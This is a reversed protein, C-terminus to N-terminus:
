IKHINRFKSIDIYSSAWDDNEANDLASKLLDNPYLTNCYKLTEIAHKKVHSVDNIRYKGLTDDEPNYEPNKKAWYEASRASKASIQAIKEAREKARKLVVEELGKNASLRALEGSLSIILAPIHGNEKTFSKVSAM